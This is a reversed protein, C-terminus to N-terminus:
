SVKKYTGKIAHQLGREIKSLGAVEHSTLQKGKAYKEEMRQVYARNEEKLLGCTLCFRISKTISARVVSEPTFVRKVPAKVEKTKETTM